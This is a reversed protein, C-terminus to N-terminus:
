SSATQQLTLAIGNLETGLRSRDTLFYDEGEREIAAHVRSISTEESDLDIRDIDVTGQPDGRGFVLSSDNLPIDQIPRGGRLPLALIRQFHISAGPVEIVDLNALPIQEGPAASRRNVVIPASLPLPCYLVWTARRGDWTISALAPFEGEGRIYIADSRSSGIAM